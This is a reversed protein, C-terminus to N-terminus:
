CPARVRYAEEPRRDLPYKYRLAVFAGTEILLHLCGMIVDAQIITELPLYGLVCFLLGHAIISVNPSGAANTSSLVQPLHVVVAPPDGPRRRSGGADEDVASPPPAARSSRLELGSGSISDGVDVAPLRAFGQAAPQPPPLEEETVDVGGALAWVQPTHTKLVPHCCHTCLLPAYVFCVVRRVVRASTSLGANFIAIQSALSALTCATALWPSLDGTFAAFSGSRWTAYDPHTAISVVLPLAYSTTAVVLTLLTGAIYTRRPDKVEGALSGLADWGTFSWMITALFGSWDIAPAVAAAAPLGAAVAPAQGVLSVLFPLFIGATIVVSLSGVGSMGRINVWVGAAIVSLRIVLSPLPAPPAGPMIAYLAYEAFLIPYISLDLVSSVVGNVGIMWGAFDNFATTVWLIYGGNSPLLTSLEATVLAQPLSWCLPFVLFALLCPLPGASVVAPEIGFPGGSVLFFAVAVFKLTGLVRKSGGEAAM